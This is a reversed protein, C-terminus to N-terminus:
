RQWRDKFYSVNVYFVERMVKLIIAKRRIALARTEKKITEQNQAKVPQPIHVISFGPSYGRM